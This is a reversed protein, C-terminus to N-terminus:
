AHSPMPTVSRAVQKGNQYGHIAVVAAAAPVFIRRIGDKQVDLSRLPREDVYVDLRDIGETEIFVVARNPRNAGQARVKVVRPARGAILSAAYEILDVNTELLDRRTFSRVKDPVVGLDEVPTGARKGVRLTRRMSVRMAAGRPLPVYVSGDGPLVLDALHQHTWVNAGGAGTSADVGIVPGIEHDQFGAAFIDTTSYCLADVILVVPGFYKQGIANCQEPDTIPFGASYTAGTQLAEKMSSVWPSLDAWQSNADHRECIRLNLATNLFQAPEPEIRRSTLTQLILEGNMIVGGGNGRVDIILGRPPLATILRVFEAVFEDPPWHAFTRLRLYGMPGEPTPVERAEFVTPMSSELAPVSEARAKRTAAHEEARMADPKFLMRRTRQVTDQELDIGDFAFARAAAEASTAAGAGPDRSAVWDFRIQDDGSADRYGVVVWEEDPPPAVILARTTLTQVGRAHRAARNSGAYRQAAAWVAREIPMGNWYRIEVGSKFRPHVFNPVVHSVVYRVEGDDDRFDEVMFPLFAIMANYPAPLLYNTHLDRVSTFIDTMERHFEVEPPADVDALRELSRELLKLRQVPDVSHMARKLPLHAYNQELLILAQKVIRRRDAVPLDGHEALLESLGTVEGVVAEMSPGALFAARDILMATEPLVHQPVKLMGKM